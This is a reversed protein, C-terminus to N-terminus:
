RYGSPELVLMAVNYVKILQPGHEGIEEKEREYALVQEIYARTKEAEEDTLKRGENDTCFFQDHVFNDETDVIARAVSLGM